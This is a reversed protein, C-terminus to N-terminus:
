SWCHGRAVGAGVASVGPAKLFRSFDRIARGLLAGAQSLPGPLLDPQHSYKIKFTKELILSEIVRIIPETRSICAQSVKGAGRLARM